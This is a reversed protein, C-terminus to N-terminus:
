QYRLMVTSRFTGELDQWQCSGDYKEATEEIILLGFGHEPMDKHSTDSHKANKRVKGSNNKPNKSNEMDIIIFDAKTRCNLNLFPADNGSAKCANIGNDLLNFFICCLDNPLIQHKEPLIVQYHVQIGSEAALSYKNSLIADVLYDSCFSHYRIQQFNSDIQSLYDSAEQFQKDQLMERLTSIKQRFDTQCAAAEAKRKQLAHLQQTELQQQIQANTLDAKLRANKVTDRALLVFSLTSLGISIASVIILLKVALSEPYSHSTVYASLIYGIQGIFFFILFRYSHKRM